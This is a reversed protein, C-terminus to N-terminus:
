TMIGDTEYSGHIASGLGMKTAPDTPIEIIEFHFHQIVKYLLTKSTSYLLRRESEGGSIREADCCGSCRLCNGNFNNGRQKKRAIVGDLTEM